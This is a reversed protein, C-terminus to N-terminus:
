LLGRLVSPVDKMVEGESYEKVDFSDWVELYSGLSERFSVCFSKESLEKIRERHRPVLHFFLSIADEVETLEFQDSSISPDNLEKPKALQQKQIELRGQELAGTHMREEDIPVLIGICSPKCSHTVRSGWFFPSDLNFVFTEM